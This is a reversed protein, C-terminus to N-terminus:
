CLRDVVIVTRDDFHEAETSGKVTAFKGIKHPDEAEAREFATEWAEVSAVTPIDPYGDTFIEISRVQDKPRTFDVLEGRRPLRGNLTDFGLPSEPDNSYQFQTKIGGSIFDTVLARHEELSLTAVTNDIISDAVKRSIIGEVVANDFGLLIARRAAAETVDTAPAADALAKFVAVRAHTSIADILKESLIVETGNIRIGTDGLAIFRWREGCDFAMAITTSPPVPLNLAATKSALAESLRAIIEAGPLDRGARDIALQSVAAAVTLAALRGTGAGDVITGCPDTAGDCIGIVAGPLIVPVDDGVQATNRYKSNSLVEIRM